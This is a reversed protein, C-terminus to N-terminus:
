VLLYGVLNYYSCSTFGWEPSWKPVLAIQECWFTKWQLPARATPEVTNFCEFDDISMYYFSTIVSVTITVSITIYAIFNYCYWGCVENYYLECNKIYYMITFTISLLTTTTISESIESTIHLLFLLLMCHLLLLNRFKQHLIYM